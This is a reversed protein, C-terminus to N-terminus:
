MYSTETKSRKRIAFGQSLKELRPGIIDNADTVHIWHAILRVNSSMACAISFVINIAFYSQTNHKAQM